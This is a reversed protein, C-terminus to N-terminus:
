QYDSYEVITVPATDPGRSPDTAALTVEVRPPELMVRLDGAKTRLDDVLKARAQQQRQSGLFDLIPQRLQELTRGQTRDKNEDYFRQV